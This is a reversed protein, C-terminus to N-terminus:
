VVLESELFTTKACTAPRQAKKSSIINAEVTCGCYITTTELQRLDTHNGSVNDISSENFVAVCRLHSQCFKDFFDTGHVGYSSRVHESSTVPGDANFTLVALDLAAAFVIEKKIRSIELCHAEASTMTPV